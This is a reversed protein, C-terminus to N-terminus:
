VEFLLDHEFAIISKRWREPIKITVENKNCFGVMTAKSNATIKGTSEDFLEQSMKLSKNGIHYIKTRVVVNDYLKIPSLYDISISALILGEVEWDLQEKLVENFYNMRGLDFYQQYVSNTVHGLQDIDNFRIQIPTLHFYKVPKHDTM